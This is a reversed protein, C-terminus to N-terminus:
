QWKVVEVGRRFVIGITRQALYAVHWDGRHDECRVVIGGWEEEGGVRLHLTARCPETMAVQGCRGHIGNHKYEDGM